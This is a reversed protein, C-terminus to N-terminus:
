SFPSLRQYLKRVCIKKQANQPFSNKLLWMGNCECRTLSHFQSRLSPTKGRSGWVRGTGVLRALGSCIHRTLLAGPAHAARFLTV